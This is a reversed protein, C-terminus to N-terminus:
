EDEGYAKLRGAGTVIHSRDPASIDGDGDGQVIQSGSVKVDHLGEVGLYALVVGMAETYQNNSVLVIFSGVALWFKRSTFRALAHKM